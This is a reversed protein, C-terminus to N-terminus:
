LVITHAKYRHRHQFLGYVTIHHRHSTHVYTCTSIYMRIHHKLIPIEREPARSTTSGPFRVRPSDYCCQLFVGVSSKLLVESIFNVIGQDTNSNTTYMHVYTRTHTCTTHLLSTTGHASNHVYTHQRMAFPRTVRRMPQTKSSDTKLFFDIWRPKIATIHVYMGYMRIYM